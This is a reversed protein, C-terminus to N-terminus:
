TPLIWNLLPRQKRMEWALGMGAGPSLKAWISLHPPATQTVAGFFLPCGAGVAVSGTGGAAAGTLLLILIAPSYVALQLCSSSAHYQM